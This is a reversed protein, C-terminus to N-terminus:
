ALTNFYNMLLDYDYYEVLCCYDTILGAIAIPLIKELQNYLWEALRHREESKFPDEIIRDCNYRNIHHNIESHIFGIDDINMISKEKTNKIDDDDGIIFIRREDSISITPKYLIWMKNSVVSNIYGIDTTYENGNHINIINENSIRMFEKNMRICEQNSVKRRNYLIDSVVNPTYLHSKKEEYKTKYIHGDHGFYLCTNEDICTLLNTYCNKIKLSPHISIMINPIQMNNEYYKSELNEDIMRISPKSIGDDFLDFYIPWKTHRYFLMHRPQDFNVNKIFKIKNDSIAFISIESDIITFGVSVKRVGFLYICNKIRVISQIIGEIPEFSKVEYKGLIPELAYYKENPYRQSYIFLSPLVLFRPESNNKVNFM